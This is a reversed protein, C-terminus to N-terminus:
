MKNAFIVYEGCVFSVILRQVELHLIFLSSVGALMAILLKKEYIKKMYLRHWGCRSRKEIEASFAAERVGPETLNWQKIQLVSENNKKLDKM